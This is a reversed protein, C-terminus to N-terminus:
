KSIGTRVGRGCSSTPGYETGRGYIPLPHGACNDSKLDAVITVSLLPVKQFFNQDVEKLIKIHMCDRRVCQRDRAASM